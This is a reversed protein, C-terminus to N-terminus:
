PWRSAITGRDSRRPVSACSRRRNARVQHRVLGFHPQALAETLEAAHLEQAARLQRALERAKLVLEVVKAGIRRRLLDPLRDLERSVDVPRVGEVVDLPDEVVEELKMAVAAAGVVRREYGAEPLEVTPRDHQDPM